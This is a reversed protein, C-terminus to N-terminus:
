RRRKKASDMEFDGRCPCDKELEIFGTKRPLRKWKKELWSIRKELAPHTQFARPMDDYSKEEAEIEKLKRFMDIMGRPDINAAVLYDWGSDDAEKEYEQSFSQHVLFASGGALVAVAGGRGRLFVKLVLLPGAAAIQHRFEHKRTVHAMEHALVGLLEEPRNCLKLLGTTVVIHGGPIAFANPIELTVLHFQWGQIGPVAALLPQAVVSLRAIENTDDKFSFERKLAVLLAEGHKKETEPSVRAAIARVMAGTGMMGLWVLLVCGLCFYVVTKIRRRVENRTLRATEEERLQDIAPISTIELVEMDPTTIMLEPREIDHFLIRGEGAQEITARLQLVPIAFKAESSQFELGLNTFLITGEVAENGFDPHFAHAPYTQYAKAM